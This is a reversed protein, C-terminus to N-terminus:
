GDRRLEDLVGEYVPGGCEEAAEPGLNSELMYQAIAKLLTVWHAYHQQYTGGCAMEDPLCEPVIRGISALTRRVARAEFAWDEETWATPPATM